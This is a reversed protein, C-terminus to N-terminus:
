KENVIDKDKGALYENFSGKNKLKINELIPNKIKKAKVLSIAEPILSTMVFVNYM